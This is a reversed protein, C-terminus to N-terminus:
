TYPWAYIYVVNRQEDIFIEWGEWNTRYYHIMRGAGLANPDFVRIGSEKQWQSVYPFPTWGSAVSNKISEASLMESKAEPVSFTQQIYAMGNPDTLFRVFMHPERGGFWIAEADGVVEPLERDTVYRFAGPILREPLLRTSVSFHTYFGLPPNRLLHVLGLDWVVGTAVLALIIGFRRKAMQRGESEASAENMETAMTVNKWSRMPM